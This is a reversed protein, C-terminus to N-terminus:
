FTPQPLPSSLPSPPLLHLSLISCCSMVFPTTTFSHSFITSSSTSPLNHLNHLFITLVAFSNLLHPFPVLSVFDKPFLVPFTGRRTRRADDTAFLIPLSNVDDRLPSAAVCPKSWMLQGCIPGQRMLNASWKAM